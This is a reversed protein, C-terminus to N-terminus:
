AFGKEIEQIKGDNKIVSLVYNYFEYGLTDLSIEESKPKLTVSVNDSNNNSSTWCSVSFDKMAKLICDNPYFRTDFNILVQKEARDIIIKEM